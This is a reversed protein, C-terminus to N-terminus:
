PKLIVYQIAHTIPLSNDKMKNESAMLQAEMAWKVTLEESEDLVKFPWSPKGRIKKCFQSIQEDIPHHYDMTTAPLKYMTSALCSDPTEHM